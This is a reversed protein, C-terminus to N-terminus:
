RNKWRTLVDFFTRESFLGKFEPYDALFDDLNEYTESWNVIPFPEWGELHLSNIWLMADAFYGYNPHEWEIAVVVFSGIDKRTAKIKYGGGDDLITSNTNEELIRSMKVEKRIKGIRLDKMLVDIM